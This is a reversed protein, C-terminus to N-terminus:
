ISFETSFKFISLSFYDGKSPTNTPEIKLFLIIKLHNLTQQKYVLHHM